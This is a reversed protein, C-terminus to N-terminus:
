HRQAEEISPIKDNKAPDRSEPLPGIQIDDPEPASLKLSNSPNKGDILDRQTMTGEDGFRASNVM